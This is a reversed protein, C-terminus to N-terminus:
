YIRVHAATKNAANQNLQLGVGNRKQNTWDLDANPLYNGTANKM